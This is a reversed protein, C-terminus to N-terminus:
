DETGMGGYFHFQIEKFNNRAVSLVYKSCIIQNYFQANNM